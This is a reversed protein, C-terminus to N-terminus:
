VALGPHLSAMEFGSKRIDDHDIGPSVASPETEWRCQGLVGSDDTTWTRLPSEGPPLHIRVKPEAVSGSENELSSDRGGESLSALLFQFNSDM